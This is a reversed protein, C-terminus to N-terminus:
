KQTQQKAQERMARDPQAAYQARQQPTWDAVQAPLADVVQNLKATESKRSLISM